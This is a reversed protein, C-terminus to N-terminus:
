FAPWGGWLFLTFGWIENEGINKHCDFGSSFDSFIKLWLGLAKLPFQKELGKLHIM